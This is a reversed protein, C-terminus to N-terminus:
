YFAWTIGSGSDRITSSNSVTHWVDELLEGCGYSISAINMGTNCTNYAEPMSSNLLSGSAVGSETVLQAQTWIQDWFCVSVVLSICGKVCLLTKRLYPVHDGQIALGIYHTTDLRRGRSTRNGKNSITENWM